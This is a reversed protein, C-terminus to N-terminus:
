VLQARDLEACMEKWFIKLRQKTMVPVEDSNIAEEFTQRRSLMEEIDKGFLSQKRQPIRVLCRIQSSHDKYLKFDEFNKDGAPSAISGFYQNLWVVIDSQPFNTALVSLGALTDGIAQGGTIVTHLQVDHGADKIMQLADNEKLYSVLPVFSSAGNDIIINSVDNNKLIIEIMKDFKRQDIDDGSMIDIIKVGLSKYGAFTTNVPDTDFGVVNMNKNDMYQYLVACIFSKGVGGKGQLIFHIM